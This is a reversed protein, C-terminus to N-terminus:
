TRLCNKSIHMTSRRVERSRIEHYERDDTRGRRAPFRLRQIGANRVYEGYERDAAENGRAKRRYHAADGSTDALYAQYSEDARAKETVPTYGETEAYAIQVDNSLLYQAFLWSALM